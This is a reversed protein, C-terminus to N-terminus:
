VVSKRDTTEVETPTSDPETVPTSEAETYVSAPEAQVDGANVDQDQAYIQGTFVLGISLALATRNMWKIEIM